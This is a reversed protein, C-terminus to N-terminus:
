KINPYKKKLRHLTQLESAEIDKIKKAAREDDWEKRQRIVAEEKLRKQELLVDISVYIDELKIFYTEDDRCSGSQSFVVEIENEDDINFGSFNDPNAGQVKCAIEIAKSELEKITKILLEKEIM